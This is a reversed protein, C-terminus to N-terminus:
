QGNSAVEYGDSVGGEPLTRRPHGRTPGDLAATGGMVRLPESYVLRAQGGLSLSTRLRPYASPSAAHPNGDGAHSNSVGDHSHSLRNSFSQNSTTKQAGAYPVPSMGAILVQQISVRASHIVLHRATRVWGILAWLRPLLFPFLRCHLSHPTTVSGPSGM